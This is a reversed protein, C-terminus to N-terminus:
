ADLGVGAPATDRLNHAVVEVTLRIWAGGAVPDPRRRMM